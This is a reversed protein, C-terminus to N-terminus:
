CSRSAVEYVDPSLNPEALIRKLEGLMLDQRTKNYKRWRTLGGLLRAAVQPNLKNLDIVRDALFRYGSGDLKHFNVPNTNCFAGILARVKNPNTMEFAEHEMLAKVHDLAKDSTNSAQISFWLDVVLPEHKWQQYFLDLLGDRQELDSHAVARLAASQDTMNNASNFQDVCLKITGVDEITSLYSLCSNSLSRKAIDVAVPRYEGAVKNEEYAEQLLPRLTTAIEKRAYERVKHIGDVDVHAFGRSASIESLYAESPLAFMMAVIAKDLKNDEIVGKYASILAPDLSLGEGKQNAEIMSVLVNTGLRYGADWRNFDDSDNSMLFALDDASYDFNLRVPASFGRLLSPIPKATVGEFTVRQKTETISVVIETEPLQKSGQIRLEIDNGSEDLLGLKVPILYPKKEPQGNTEPCSQTFDLHYLENAVDYEDTVDLVPTGAQDYWNKFQTLDISNATEMADVFDDTTVAQGDHREFYLDSGKRFGEPGVLTHIMRVVESGKEYVTLTYFNNIEIYSSPRVPHAMPGADEAFQATRLMSVEEVRKVARSNMDSSFEQDRFVTFGEKLSLQFWDRCTVRNGSWNHFYEHAIVGEVRQFGADTTTEPKALVCSTNFVNLGKNEMAGMNFHSVAVIMYIDLDYERGFVEEDWKMSKKLSEIGHSCKDVDQPEVFVQLKIDRGSMTTFSDEVLSLDGAVLAFLYCPKKFPDEWTVWHRGAEGVGKDIPNGNSLLMPYAEKDACVTTTFKAMVDPRDLYYTIKRFGEAECQTCFMGNSKYLGELSTNEQPKIKTEVELIFANPVSDISLTEGDIRYGEKVVSSGDIVLSLLELDCGHLVLSQPMSEEADPNRIITLQSKVISYEEYLDFYLNTTEILYTPVQYDKLHITKPSQNDRM